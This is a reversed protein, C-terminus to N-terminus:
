GRCQCYCVQKGEHVPQCQLGYLHKATAIPLQHIIERHERIFYEANFKLRVKVAMKIEPHNQVEALMVSGYNGFGLRRIDNLM